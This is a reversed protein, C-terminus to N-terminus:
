VGKKLLSEGLYSILRSNLLLINIKKTSIEVITTLNENLQFFLFPHHQHTPIPDTM